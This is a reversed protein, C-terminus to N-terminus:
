VNSVEKFYFLKQLNELDSKLSHLKQSDIINDTSPPQLLNEIRKKLNYEQNKHYSEISSIIQDFWKNINQEVNKSYSNFVANLLIPLESLFLQKLNENKTNRLSAGVIQGGLSGIITGVGPMFMSGVVAGISIPLANEVVQNVTNTQIEANYSTFKPLDIGFNGMEIKLPFEFKEQYEKTIHNKFNNLFNHIEIGKSESYQRLAREVQVPLARDWFKEIGAENLRIQNAIDNELNYSFRKLSVKFIKLLTERGIKEISTILQKFRSDVTDQLNNIHENYEILKEKNSNYLSELTQLEHSILNFALKIRTNEREEKESNAKDRIINIQELLNTLDNNTGPNEFVSFSSYPIVIPEAKLVDRLRKKAGNIADEMEEEDLRDIKSIVFIISDIKQTLIKTELFEAESKTVPAVADLLFVAADCYPLIQETVERRSKSIDNVGPTDIIVIEQKLLPLSLKILVHKIKSADLDGGVSLRSLGTRSLELEETKGDMWAITCNEEEGFELVNITATTPLVDHPLLEKGIISNVLTSKGRKFEGLIALHFKKSKISNLVAQSYQVALPVNLKDALEIIKNLNNEFNM